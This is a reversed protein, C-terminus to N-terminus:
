IRNYKYTRPFKAAMVSHAQSGVTAMKNKVRADDVYSRKETGEHRRFHLMVGDRIPDAVQAHTEELVYHPFHIGATLINAGRCVYKSREQEPLVSIERRVNDTYLVSHSICDVAANGISVQHMFASRIIICDVIGFRLLSSLDGDGSIGVFEDLDAFLTYDWHGKTRETCDNVASLQGFYNVSDSSVTLEWPLITMLHTNASTYHKLIKLTMESARNNYFVFHRIGIHTYYEIFEVLLKPSVNGWLIPGCLAFSLRKTKRNHEKPLQYSLKGCSNRNQCVLEVADISWAAPARCVLRVSRFRERNNDYRTNQVRVTSRFFTKFRCECSTENVFADNNVDVLAIFHFYKGKFHASYVHITDLIQTWSPSEYPLPLTESVNCSSVNRNLEFFTTNYGNKFERMTARTYSRRYIAKPATEPREEFETYDNQPTNSVSRLVLFSCSISLLLPIRSSRVCRLLKRRM